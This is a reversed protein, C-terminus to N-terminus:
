VDTQPLLSLARALARGEAGLEDNFEAVIQEYTSGIASQSILKHYGTQTLELNFVERTLVGVNEGFTKIEPREASV